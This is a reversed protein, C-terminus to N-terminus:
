FTHCLPVLGLCLRHAWVDCLLRVRQRRPIEGVRVDELHLFVLHEALVPHVGSMGVADLFRTLVESPGDAAAVQDDGAVVVTLDLREV